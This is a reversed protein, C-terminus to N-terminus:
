INFYARIIPTVKDWLTVLQTATSIASPIWAVAAKLIGRSREEPKKTAETALTSLTEVVEKKDVDPLTTSIVAQTFEQLAQAFEKQSQNDAVVQNLSATITGIQSGLNLNAINSNEIHITANAAAQLSKQPFADYERVMIELDRRIGASVAYMKQESEQVLVLAVTAGHQAFTSKLHGKQANIFEDIRNTIFSIDERGIRGNRQKILDVWIQYLSNAMQEISVIQFRGLSAEHQGSRSNLGAIAAYRTAAERINEQTQQAIADAEKGFRLRATPNLDEYM